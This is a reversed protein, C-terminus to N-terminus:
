TGYDTRSNVLNDRSGWGCCQTHESGPQRQDPLSYDTDGADKQEM